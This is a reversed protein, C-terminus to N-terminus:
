KNLYNLVKEEMENINNTIPFFGLKLRKKGNNECVSLNTGCNFISHKFDNIYRGSDLGGIVVKQISEKLEM